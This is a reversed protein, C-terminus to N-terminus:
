LYLLCKSFLDPVGRIGLKLIAAVVEVDPSPPSESYQSSMVSCKYTISLKGAFTTMKAQKITLVANQNGSGDVTGPTLVYNTSDTVEADEPDKWTVLAAHNTDLGGITCTM